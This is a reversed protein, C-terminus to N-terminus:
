VPARRGGFLRDSAWGSLYAGAVAGLPLVAYKLGAADIRTAQVEKLHTVGWDLFGYRCANLAGLSIGLMWLGPNTLTLRVNEVWSTAPGIVHSMGGTSSGEAT